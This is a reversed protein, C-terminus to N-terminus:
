KIKNETKFQDTHKLIDIKRILEQNQNLASRYEKLKSEIENNKMIVQIKKYELKRREREWNIQRREEKIREMEKKLVLNNDNDKNTNETKNQIEKRRAM